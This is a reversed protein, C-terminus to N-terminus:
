QKAKNQKTITKNQKKSNPLTQYLVFLPRKEIRAMTRNEQGSRKM